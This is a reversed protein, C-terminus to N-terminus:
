VHPYMAKACWLQEGFAFVGFQSMHVHLSDIVFDDGFLSPAAIEIDVAVRRGLGWLGLLGFGGAWDGCGWYGSSAQGIGVAGIARVCAVTLGMLGM